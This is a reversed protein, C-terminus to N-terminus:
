IMRVTGMKMSELAQVRGDKGLILEVSGGGIDVVLVTRDGLPLRRSVAMYVIRAEEEGALLQLDIGSEKRVTELFQKGNAAERAASTAVATYQTVELKEMWESFSRMASVAKKMTGESIEQHGFVDRGLRVPSRITKIPKLVFGPLLEAVQMRLANSGVDIAALRPPTVKKVPPPAKKAM